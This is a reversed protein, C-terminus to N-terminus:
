FEAPKASFVQLDVPAALFTPAKQVFATLHESAMHSSASELDNWVEVMTYRNEQETSKMLEYSINGAEARTIPLLTNVEELFVHEQDPQVQMHAHIIFM